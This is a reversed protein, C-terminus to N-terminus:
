LSSLFKVLGAGWIEEDVFCVVVFAVLASLPIAISLSQEIEPM